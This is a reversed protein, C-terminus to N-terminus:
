VYLARVRHDWGYQLGAALVIAAAATVLPVHLAPIQLASVTM